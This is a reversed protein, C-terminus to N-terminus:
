SKNIKFSDLVRQVTKPERDEEVTTVAMIIYLRKGALIIRGELLSNGRAHAQMNLAPFGQLTLREQSILTGQTKRLSGDRASELVEDSSRGEITDDEVYSCMYDTSKTPEVSVITMPRSGGGEAPAEAAEVSPKGPFEISFSGDPATYTQWAHPWLRDYNAVATAILVAVVITVIRGVTIHSKM